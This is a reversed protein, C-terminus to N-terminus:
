ERPRIVFFGCVSVVIAILITIDSFEPVTSSGWLSTVVFNDVASLEAFDPHDCTVNFQYLGAGAFSANYEYRDSLEDMEYLNAFNDSFSINCRGGSIFDGSTKNVYEANFTIEVNEDKPYNSYITLNSNVGYAYGTFHTVDFTLTNGSCEVNSCISGPCPVDESLIGAKTTASESYYVEGFLGCNVNDITVTASGNITSDLNQSLIVVYGEGINVNSDYDEGDANVPTSWQISGSQTALKMDVVKTLNSLASFNTSGYSTSFENSTPPSAEYAVTITENSGYGPNELTDSCNVSWLYNSGDKEFTILTFNFASNATVSKTENKSFTGTWNGMLTCTGDLDSEASFIYNASDSTYANLNSVTPYSPEEELVYALPLYDINGTRPEYFSDCIGDPESDLCTQSFGDGASKGWFNGGLYNGGIINTESQLSTNLFNPYTNTGSGVYDAVTNNNFYNNYISNYRVYAGTGAYINLARANLTFTTDKITNYQTDGSTSEISIGYSPCDTITCGDVINNDGVITIGYACDVITSNIINVGNVDSVHIGSYPSPSGEVYVNEITGPNDRIFIGRQDPNTISCDKVYFNNATRLYMSSARNSDFTLNEFTNGYAKYDYLGNYWDTIRCNKVTVNSVSASSRYIYIGYNAVDDGDITHGDCDFIVNNGTISICNTTGSNIIDATMIYTEGNTSFTGCGTVETTGLSGFSDEESTTNNYSIIYSSNSDFDLIDVTTSDENETVKYQPPGGDVKKVSVDRVNKPITVPNSTVQEEVAQEPVIKDNLINFVTIGILSIIVVMIVLITTPVKTHNLHHNYGKDKFLLKNDKVKSKSKFKARNVRKQKNNKNLLNGFVSVIKDKLFVLKGLVVGNLYKIGKEILNVIKDNFSENSERVKITKTIKTVTVKKEYKIIKEPKSQKVSFVNKRRKSLIQNIMIGMPVLLGAIVFILSFNVNYLYLLYGSLAITLIVSNVFIIKMGLNSSAKKGILSM